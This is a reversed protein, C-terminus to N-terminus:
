NLGKQRLKDLFVLAFDSETVVEKSYHYVYFLLKRNYVSQKVDIKRLCDTYNAIIKTAIQMAEINATEGDFNSQQFSHTFM